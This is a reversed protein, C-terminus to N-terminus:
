YIEHDHEPATYYVEGKRIRAHRVIKMEGREESELSVTESLKKWFLSNTKPDKFIPPPPSQKKAFV